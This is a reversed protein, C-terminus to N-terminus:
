KEDPEGSGEASPPKAGGQGREPHQPQEAQAARPRRHQDGGRERRSGRHRLGLAESVVGGMLRNKELEIANPHIASIPEHSGEVGTIVSLHKVPFFGLTEAFPAILRNFNEILYTQRGSEGAGSIIKLTLKLQDIEAQAKARMRTADAKSNLVMREQEALAPTIIEAEFKQRLMEIRQKEAEIKALVGTVQARANQQAQEVGVALRQEEQKVKVRTDAELRQYENELSRVEVEARRQERQETAAATAEARAVRAKTEANATQVRKLLAIYLDPETVGELRHDEVDAINMTTIELGINELDEKCVNIMKAVLIDKDKMVQEPTMSAISDRLHGEIINSATSRLNEPNEALSLIRTVARIRGGQNSAIAFSVTAKVNLPVVGAAIASDVVVEITHPTLDLKAFRNLLPFVFVRGGSITRFGKTPGGGSLVGLENGGVLKMKTLLQFLVTVIILGFLVSVFIIM